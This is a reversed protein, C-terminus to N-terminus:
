NLELLFALFSPESNLEDNGDVVHAAIARRGLLGRGLCALLDRLRALVDCALRGFKVVGVARVRGAGEVVLEVLGLEERDQWAILAEVLGVEVGPPGQEVDIAITHDGLRLEERVREARGRAARASAHLLDKTHVVLITAAAEIHAGQVTDVETVDSRGGRWVRTGVRMRHQAASTHGALTERALEVQRADIDRTRGCSTSNARAQSPKPKPSTAWSIKAICESREGVAGPM